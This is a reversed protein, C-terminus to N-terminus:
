NVIRVYEVRPAGFNILIGLKLGTAKLYSLTQQKFVDTLASVAKLELVIRSDIILDLRQAGVVREKYRVEVNKQREFAIQRIELEFVLAEEYVSEIFGPGLTNHVEFVAQM